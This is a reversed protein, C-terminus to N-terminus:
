PIPIPDGFPDLILNGWPDRLWNGISSTVPYNTFDVVPNGFLDLLPNVGATYDILIVDTYLADGSLTITITTGSVVVSSITEATGSLSFDGTAPTSGADLSKSATLIIQDDAVNGIKATSIIPIIGAYSGVYSSGICSGIAGIGTVRLM